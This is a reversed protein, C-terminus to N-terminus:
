GSRDCSYQEHGRSWCNQNCFAADYPGSDEAVSFSNGLAFGPPDNVAGAVITLRHIASTNRNDPPSDPGSDRAAIEVVTTGNVDKALRFSLEGTPSVQPNESFFAPDFNMIRFSVTQANPGSIEDLASPPGAVINTAWPARYTPDDETVSVNPGPTFRPPDNVAQMDLTLTGTASAEPVGNDTVFMGSTIRVRYIPRLIYRFSVIFSSSDFVPIIQGGRQTTREIQTM